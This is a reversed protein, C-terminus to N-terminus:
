TPEYKQVRNAYKSDAANGHDKAQKYEVCHVLRAFVPLRQVITAKDEVGILESQILLSRLQPARRM